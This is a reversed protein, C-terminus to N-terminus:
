DRELFSLHVASLTRHSPPMFGARLRPNDRRILRDTHCVDFYCYLEYVIRKSSVPLNVVPCM